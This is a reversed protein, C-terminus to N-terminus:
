FWVMAHCQVVCFVMNFFYFIIFSREFEIEKNIFHLILVLVLVTIKELYIFCDVNKFYNFVRIKLEQRIYKSPKGPRM